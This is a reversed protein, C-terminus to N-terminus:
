PQLGPINYTKGFATVLQDPTANYVEKLADQWDTGDKILNVMQGVGGPKSKLLFSIMGSAAGYQWADIQNGATLLGGLSRTQQMVRLASKQKLVMQQDKTVINGALYDAIGEDLWTPLRQASKYRHMFGHTSEHVLIGVFKWRAEVRSIDGYYLSILVDGVSNMHCMGGTTSRVPNQFFTAEFEWFSQQRAFAVVICKGKWFQADPPVSFIESLRAYGAELFLCCDRAIDAPADTVYFFHTTEYYHLPTQLFAIRIKELQERQDQDVAALEEESLEPWLRIGTTRFHELREQNREELTKEVVTEEEVPANKDTKKKDSTKVAPKKAGIINSKKPTFDPTPVYTGWGSAKAAAGPDPKDAKDAKTKAATTKTSTKAAPKEPTEKVTKEAKAAPSASTKTHLPMTRGPPITPDTPVAAALLLICLITLLGPFSRSLFSM